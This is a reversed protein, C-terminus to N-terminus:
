SFRNTEDIYRQVASFVTQNAERPLSQDGYLLLKLNPYAVQNVTELMTVRHTAYLPCVLLYHYPHEDELNCACTASTVLNIRHLHKRLASCGMRLRTHHVASRRKGFYYLPDPLFPGKSIRNKFATTSPADKIRQDLENWERSTAPLFSRRHAQIRPRPIDLNDRNRLGYHTRDQVRQPLLDLLYAPAVNNKIRYFLTLRHERRRDELGKWKLEQDLSATTYRATAGSVIRAANNQIADLQDLLHDTEDAMDWLIDGYEV